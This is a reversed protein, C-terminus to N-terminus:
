ILLLDFEMLVCGYFPHITLLNEFLALIREQVSLFSPGSVAILFDWFVKKWIVVAKLGRGCDGIQSSKSIFFSILTMEPKRITFEIIM